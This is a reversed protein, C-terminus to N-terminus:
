SRTRDNGFSRSAAHASICTRRKQAEQLPVEAAARSTNACWNEPECELLEDVQVLVLVPLIRRASSVAPCLDSPRYDFQAIRETSPVLTSGGLQEPTHGVHM